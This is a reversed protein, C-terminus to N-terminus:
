LIKENKKIKIIKANKNIYPRLRVSGDSYHETGCNNWPCVLCLGEKKWETYANIEKNCGSCNMYTM